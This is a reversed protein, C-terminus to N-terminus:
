IVFLWFFDYEWDVHVSALLGLAIIGKPHGLYSMVWFFINEGELLEDVSRVRHRVLSGSNRIIQNIAILKFGSRPVIFSLQLDRLLEFFHVSLQRLTDFFWDTVVRFNRVGSLLAVDGLEYSWWRLFKILSAFSQQSSKSILSYLLKIRAVVGVACSESALLVVPSFVDEEIFNSEEHSLFKAELSGCENIDPAHSEEDVGSFTGGFVFLVCLLGSNDSVTQKIDEVVDEGFGGGSDDVSKHFVRQHSQDPVLYCRCDSSVLTELRLFDGSWWLLHRTRWLCADKHGVEMNRLEKRFLVWHIKRM